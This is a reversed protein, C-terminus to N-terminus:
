AVLLSADIGLQSLRGGIEDRYLPNMVVVADPPERILQEPGVIPQGTGAIHKGHKRPNLDVARDVVREPDAVNLFTVGKSGAGWVVVRQGRRALEAFRQQWTRVQEEYAAAFRAVEATLDQLDARHPDPMAVEGEDPHAELLLFQGGFVADVHEVRFGSRAFVYRLSQPTFYSCHEYILDWIGGDRITWLASPVEFVVLVDRRPGLVRRVMGVFASADAIHELVQRCVVVDAPHGAFREDYREPVLEVAASATTAGVYSPDFGTGRNGGRACLMELFDGQGAGIEVIDRGRLDHREVLDDVLDSAYRQFVASHHLSNEYSGGYRTRADEFSVNHFHGCTECFSLDLDGRPVGIAAEASDSLVNCHVPIGRLSLVPRATARGCVPCQRAPSRQDTSSHQERGLLARDM